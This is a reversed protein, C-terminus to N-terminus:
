NLQLLGWRSYNLHYDGVSLPMRAINRLMHHQALKLNLGVKSAVLCRQISAFWRKITSANKVLCLRM